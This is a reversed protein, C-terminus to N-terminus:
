RIGSIPCDANIQPLLNARAITKNELGAEYKAQDAKLQADNQLALEYVDLLSNANAALTALSFLSILLYLKTKKM